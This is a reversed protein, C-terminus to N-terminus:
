KIKIMIFRGSLFNTPRNLQQKKIYSKMRAISMIRDQLSNQIIRWLDCMRQKTVLVLSQVQKVPNKYEVPSLFFDFFFINYIM